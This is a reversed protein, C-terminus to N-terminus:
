RYDDNKKITGSPDHIEIKTDLDRGWTSDGFPSYTMVTIEDGATGEFKFWDTDDAPYIARKYKASDYDVIVAETEQNNPEDWLSANRYVAWGMRLKYDGTNDGGISGATPSLKFYYVGNHPPVWGCFRFDDSNYRGDTSPDVLNTTLDDAAYVELLIDDGVSSETTCFQYMKTTKLAFAYWDVDSDGDFKGDVILTKNKSVRSDDPIDEALPTATEATNNPEREADDWGAWSYVYYGGTAPDSDTHSNGNYASYYSTVIVYYLGNYPLSDLVCLSFVNNNGGAMEQDVFIDFSEEQNSKDDNSTLEESGDADWLYIKSDMDRINPYGTFPETEVWLRQGQEGVMYYTDIDDQGTPPNNADFLMGYYRVGDTPLPTQAFSEAFSNDPEHYNAWFDMSNAIIRVKYSGDGDIPNGHTLKLYYKGTGFELPAWGAVRLNGGTGRSSPDDNFINTTTDDEFFLMAELSTGTGEQVNNTYIHYISDVSMDLEFIDVDAVSSFTCETLTNDGLPQATAFFDNPETETQAIVYTSGFLIGALVVLLIPIRNKM